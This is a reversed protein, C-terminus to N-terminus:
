RRRRADCPVRHGDQACEPGLVLAGRRRVNVLDRAGCCDCDLGPSAAEVLSAIKKYGADDALKSTKLSDVERKVRMVRALARDDTAMRLVDARLQEMFKDIM